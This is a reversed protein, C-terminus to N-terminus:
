QKSTGLELSHSKFTTSNSNDALLLRMHKMQVKSLYYSFCNHLLGWNGTLANLLFQPIVCTKYNSSASTSSTHSIRLLSWVESVSLVSSQAQGWIVAWLEELCKYWWNWVYEFSLDIKILARGSQNELPLLQKTSSNLTHTLLLLPSKENGLILPYYNEWSAANM